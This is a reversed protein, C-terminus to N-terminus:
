RDKNAKQQKSGKPPAIEGEKIEKEKRKKKQLNPDPHLGLLSPLSLLPPNPPLQTRSAEKSSSGKNREVVLDKLDRMPNLTMGVEEESSTGVRAVLLRPSHAASFRDFEAESDSLEVPRELTEGEEKLCFQNIEVELSLRLSAIEERLVAVERPSHQFPLKVPPLDKRALFGLM